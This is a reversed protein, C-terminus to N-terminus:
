GDEEKVKKQNKKRKKSSQRKETKQTKQSNEASAIVRGLEDFPQWVAAQRSRRRTSAGKLGNGPTRAMEGRGQDAADGADPSSTGCTIEGRRPPHADLAGRDQRRPPRAARRRPTSADTMRQQAAM